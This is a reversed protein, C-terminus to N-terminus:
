YKCNIGSYNFTIQSVECLCIKCDHERWREKDQRIEGGTDVCMKDERYRREIRRLQFYIILYLRIDFSFASLFIMCDVIMYSSM